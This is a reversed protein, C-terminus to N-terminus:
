YYRLSSGFHTRQRLSCIHLTAQIFHPSALIFSNTCHLSSMTRPCCILLVSTFYSSLQPLILTFLRSISYSFSKISYSEVPRQLGSKAHFSARFRLQLQNHSPHHLISLQASPVFGFSSGSHQLPRLIPLESDGIVQYILLSTLPTTQLTKLTPLMYRGSWM